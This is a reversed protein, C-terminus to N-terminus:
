HYIRGTEREYEALKEPLPPYYDHVSGGAEIKGRIWLELDEKAPGEAAVREALALPMAVVGEDDCLLVDGPLLQVGAMHIPVDRDVAILDRGSASPHAGLCYVPLGVTRVLPTDRVVGHIVAACAGRARIRTTLIDGIVGATLVGLADVCFVDGPELEEILAIEASHRRRERAAARAAEDAPAAEAGRRPLYRCTRARGVLRRGVGMEFIPLLGLMYTNRWGWQLLLHNATATSVKALDDRLADLREQQEANWDLAM